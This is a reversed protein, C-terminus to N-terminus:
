RYKCGRQIVPMAAQAGAEQCILPPMLNEYSCSSHVACTFSRPQASRILIMEFGDGAGGSGEVMSFNDEVFGTEPVM